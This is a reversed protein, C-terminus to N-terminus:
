GGTEMKVLAREVSSTVARSLTNTQPHARGIHTQAQTQLHPLLAPLSCMISGRVSCWEFGGGGGRHPTAIM